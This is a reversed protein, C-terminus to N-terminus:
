RPSRAWLVRDPGALGASRYALRVAAEAAARDAPGTAAAVARWEELREAAAGAAGAAGGAPTDPTHHTTM